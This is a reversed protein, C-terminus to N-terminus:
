VKFAQSIILAWPAAWLAAKDLSFKKGGRDDNEHGIMATVASYELLRDSNCM